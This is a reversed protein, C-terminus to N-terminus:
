RASAAQWQELLPDLRALTANIALVITKSSITAGTILDIERPDGSADRPKVGLLPTAAGVFQSVFSEDKEIKDGLGPTEKSELVKMGLLSKTTPDYGVIIRIVDQFGARDATFAVGVPVDGRYGIYVLEVGSSTGPRARELRGDVVFVTDLRDPQKLVERIAIALQEARYAEITPATWEFVIVIALGALVGATGLTTVLRSASVATM